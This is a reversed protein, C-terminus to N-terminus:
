MLCEIWVKTISLLSGLSVCFNSMFVFVFVDFVFIIVKWSVLLLFRHFVFYVDVM